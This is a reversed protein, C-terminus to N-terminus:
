SVEPRSPRQWTCQTSRKCAIREAVGAALAILPADTDVAEIQQWCNDFFARAPRAFRSRVRRAIVSRGEVYGTAACLIQEGREWIELM